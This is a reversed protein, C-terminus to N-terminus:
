GTLSGALPPAGERRVGHDVYEACQWGRRNCYARLEQLQMEPSQQGKNTSVRAYLACRIPNNM